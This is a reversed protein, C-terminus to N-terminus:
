FTQAVAVPYLKDATVSIQNTQCLGLLGDGVPRKM